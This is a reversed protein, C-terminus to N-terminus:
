VPVELIHRLLPLVQAARAEDLTEVEFHRAGHKTREALSRKTPGGFKSFTRRLLPLVDVFSEAPLEVVWSDILSYLTEDRLLTQEM